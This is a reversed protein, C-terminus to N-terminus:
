KNELLEIELTNNNKNNVSANEILSDIYSIYSVILSYEGDKLNKIEFNGELDTYVKIDTNKLKIVAGVLAEGTKKDIVKGKLVAKNTSELEGKLPTGAQAFVFATIVIVFFIVKKM